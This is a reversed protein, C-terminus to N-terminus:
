KIRMRCVGNGYKKCEKRKRASIEKAAEYIIYDYKTLKDLERDIEPTIPERKIARKEKEVNQGLSNEKKIIRPRTTYYFDCLENFDEEYSEMFGIFDFSELYGLAEKIDLSSFNDEYVSGRNILYKIYANNIKMSHVQVNEKMTPEKKKSLYELLSPEKEEKNFHSNVKMFYYSSLVRDKPDRFFIFKSTDKVRLKKYDFRTLHTQVYPKLWDKTALRLYHDFQDLGIISETYHKAMQIAIGSGGTKPIHMFHIIEKNEVIRKRQNALFSEEGPRMVYIPYRVLLGISGSKFYIRDRDMVRAKNPYSILACVIVFVVGLWSNKRIKFNYCFVLLASLGWVIWSAMLVRNFVFNEHPFVFVGEIKYTAFTLAFFGLSIIWQCLISRSYKKGFSLCFGGILFDCACLLLLHKLFSVTVSKFPETYSVFFDFFFFYLVASKLVTILITSGFLITSKKFSVKGFFDKTSM